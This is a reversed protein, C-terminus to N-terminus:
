VPMIFDDRDAWANDRSNGHVDHISRGGIEPTRYYSWVPVLPAQDDTCGTLLASIALILLIVFSVYQLVVRRNIRVESERKKDGDM